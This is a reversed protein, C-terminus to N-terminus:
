EEDSATAEEAATDADEDCRRAAHWSCFGLVGASEANKTAQVAQRRSVSVGLNECQLFGTWLNACLLAVVRLTLCTRVACEFERLTLPIDEHQELCECLFWLQEYHGLYRALWGFRDRSLQPVPKRDEPPRRSGRTYGARRRAGRTDAPPLQTALAADLISAPLEWLAALAQRVSRDSALGSGPSKRDESATQEVAAQWAEKIESRSLLTAATHRGAVNEAIAAPPLTDRFLPPLTYNPGVAALRSAVDTVPRAAPAPLPEPAISKDPSSRKHAGQAYPNWERDHEVVGLSSNAGATSAQLV